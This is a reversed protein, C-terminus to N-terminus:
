VSFAFWHSSKGSVNLHLCSHPQLSCNNFLVIYRLWKYTATAESDAFRTFLAEITGVIKSEVRKSEGNLQYNEFHDEHVLICGKSSAFRLKGEIGCTIGEYCSGELVYLTMYGYLSNLSEDTLKCYKFSRASAPIYSSTTLSPSILDYSASHYFTYNTDLSTACCERGSVPPRIATGCHGIPIYTAFDLFLKPLGLVKSTNDMRKDPFVEFKHM